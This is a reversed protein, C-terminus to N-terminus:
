NIEITPIKFYNFSAFIHVPDLSQVGWNYQFKKIWSNEFEFNFNDLGHSTIYESTTMCLHFLEKGSNEGHEQYFRFLGESILKYVEYCKISNNM